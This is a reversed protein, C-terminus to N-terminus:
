REENISTAYRLNHNNIKKDLSDLEKLSKVLNNLTNKINEIDKKNLIDYVLIGNKVFTILPVSEQETFSKRISTNANVDNKAYKLENNVLEILRDNNKIEDKVKNCLHTVMDSVTNYSTKVNMIDSYYRYQSLNEILNLIQKQQEINNGKIANITLLAIATEFSIKQNETNIDYINLM